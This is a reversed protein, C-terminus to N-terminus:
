LLDTLSELKMKRSGKLLITFGRPSLSRLWEKAEEAATFKHWSAPAPLSSFVEGALIVQDFGLTVLLRVIAQHEKISVDGLELM